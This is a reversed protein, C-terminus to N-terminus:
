QKCTVVIRRLAVMRHPSSIEALILYGVPQDDTTTVAVFHAEDGSSIAAEHRAQTWQGIYPANDIHREAALVFALDAVATPRLILSSPM